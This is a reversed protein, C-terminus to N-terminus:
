RNVVSRKAYKIARHQFYKSVEESPATAIKKWAPGVGFKEQYAYFALGDKKGHRRCWGLAQQYWAEKEVSSVKKVEKLEAEHCPIAEGKAIM